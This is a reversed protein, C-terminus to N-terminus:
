DQRLAVVPELAAARRAPLWCALLAVAVLTLAMAAVALGKGLILRLVQGTQAGLAMRVGIERTRQVVFGSFLGYVGLGALVLGLLAFCFLIWSGLSFNALAGEVADRASRLEYVPVDPAFQAVTRRLDRALAEPAAHGRLAIMFQYRPQQAWPIYSQYATLPQDLSGPYRVDAM